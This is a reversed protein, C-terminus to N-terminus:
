GIPNITTGGSADIIMKASARTHRRWHEEAGEVDGTGILEVAKSYSRASARLLKAHASTSLAHRISVDWQARLLERLVGIQVALTNNGCKDWLMQHFRFSAKSWADVSPERVTTLAAIEEAADRLETVDTGTRSRALLRVAIPEVLELAVFVDDITTNSLQLYLGIHRSAVSLNPRTVFVGGGAGQRSELLSETELIRVAERLTPKSVQFQELLASESPLADGEALAGSGILTRLHDAITQAAKKARVPAGTLAVRRLAAPNAPM